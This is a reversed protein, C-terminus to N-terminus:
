LARRRGLTSTPTKRPTGYYGDTFRGPQDKAARVARGDDAHDHDPDHPDHPGHDHDHDHDGHDHTHGHGHSRSSR